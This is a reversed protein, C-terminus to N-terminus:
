KNTKRILKLIAAAVACKSLQVHLCVRLRIQPVLERDSSCCPQNGAGLRHHLTTVRFCSVSIFKQPIPCEHPEADDFGGRGSM